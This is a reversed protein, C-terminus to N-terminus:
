FMGENGIGRGEEEGNRVGNINRIITAVRRKTEVGSLEGKTASWAGKVKVVWTHMELERKNRRLTRVSVQKQQMGLEPVCRFSAYSCPTLCWPYKQWFVNRFLHPTWITLQLTFLFPLFTFRFGLPGVRGM